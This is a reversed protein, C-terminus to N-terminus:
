VAWGSVHRMNKYPNGATFRDNVQAKQRLADAAHQAGNHEYNNSWVGQRSNWEKRYRNLQRLGEACKQEDFYYHVFDTRMMNIADTLRQARPVLEINQLGLRYLMEQYTLLEHENYVRHNGDHPIFHKGWVYGRKQMQHVYYAPAEGSSELYDIFYDMNNIRQHFWIVTTDGIGLDWFTNVPYAPDYPVKGIRGEKRALTLQDILYLGEASQKFAEELTSPYEQWMLGQDGGFSSDRTKVYWARQGPTLRTKESVELDDFYASDKDSIVVDGPDIQYKKDQWWAAFFLKYDAKTLPRGSDRIAKADMAYQFFYGEEGRATSEIFIMGDLGVSPLSGTIVELARAPSEVCLRGFESVHLFQLTQSRASMGVSISSGNSWELQTINDTKLPITSRLHPPLHDYAFKIKNNRIDKASDLDYSVVAAKYNANFLCADLIILQILTSFGLQRAKVIINRHWIEKLFRKQLPNPHFLVTEGEVNTIYYLHCLRWHPDALKAKFEDPTLQPM